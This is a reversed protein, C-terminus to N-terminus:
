HEVRYFLVRGAPRMQLLFDFERVNRTLITFGLKMAQLFLVADHLAKMRDDRAYGQTRCLMGAYVSASTLVAADPTFVRHSPMADIAKEIASVAQESRPDDPDLVGVTHMLEQVAVTSHNVIRIALLDEVVEPARGQMQDIYVCTDLLLGHGASAETLFPLLADDRRSLTTKPDHKRAREASKFDFSV